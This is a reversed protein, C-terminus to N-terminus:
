KEIASYANMGDGIANGTSGSTYATFDAAGLGTIKYVGSISIDKPAWPAYPAVQGTFKFGAASKTADYTEAKAALLFNITKAKDAGAELAVHNTEDNAYAFLGNTDSPTTVTGDITAGSAVATALDVAFYAKKDDATNNSVDKGITGVESFKLLTAPAKAAVATTLVLEVNVGVNSRNVIAYENSVVQVDATTLELPDISFTYATPLAVKYVPNIITADGKVTTDAATTNDKMAQAHVSVPAVLLSLALTASLAKKLINKM